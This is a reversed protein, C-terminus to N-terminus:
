SNWCKYVDNRLFIAMGSVLTGVFLAGTVFCNLGGEIEVMQGIKLKKMFSVLKINLM